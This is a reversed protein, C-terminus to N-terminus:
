AEIKQQLNTNTFKWLSKRTEVKKNLEQETLCYIHHALLRRGGSFHIPTITQNRRVVQFYKEQSRCQANSSHWLQALNSPCKHSPLSTASAAPASRRHAATRHLRHVKGIWVGAIKRLEMIQPSFSRIKSPLFLSFGEEAGGMRIFDEKWWNKIFTAKKM